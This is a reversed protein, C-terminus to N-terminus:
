EGRWGETWEALWGAMKREVKQILALRFLDLWSSLFLELRLSSCPCLTSAPFLKTFGCTLRALSCSPHSSAALHIPGSWPSKTLWCPIKSKNWTHSTVPPNQAPCHPTTIEMEGLGCHTTFPNQPCSCLVPSYSLSLSGDRGGELVRGLELHPSSSGLAGASRPLGPVIGASHQWTYGAAPAWPSAVSGPWWTLCPLDRSWVLYSSQPHGKFLLCDAPRLRLLM